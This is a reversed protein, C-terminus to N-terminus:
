GSINSIKISNLIHDYIDFRFQEKSNTYSLTYLYNNAKFVINKTINPDSVSAFSDFALAPTNQLITVPKVEGVVMGEEAVYSTLEENVFNELTNNGQYISFSILNLSPTNSGIPNSLLVTLLPNDGELETPVFKSPYEFSLGYRSSEYVIWTTEEDTVTSANITLTYSNGFLIVLSFTFIFILSQIKM